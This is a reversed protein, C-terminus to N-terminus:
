KNIYSVFYRKGSDTGMDPWLSDRLPDPKMPLPYLSGTDMAIPPMLVMPLHVTAMALMDVMTTLMLMLMLMLLGRALLGSLLSVRLLDLKMPLPYLSGTDM